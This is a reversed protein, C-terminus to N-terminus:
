DTKIYRKQEPLLKRQAIEEVVSYIDDLTKADAGVKHKASKTALKVGSKKRLLLPM